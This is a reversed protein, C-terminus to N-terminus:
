EELLEQVEERLRALVRNKAVYVAGVSMGLAGAVEEGSKGEVTALWFSQWTREEFQGRVREAAWAFVRQQYELDWEVEEAEQPQEELFQLMATDGSGRERAQRSVLFDRIKNRTLTFLWGRFAGRNPDYELKPAIGAMSRFVEQTIDAADADQLGKHRAWGYVLPAYLDVFERWAESDQPDRLRVLLSPRTTPSDPM